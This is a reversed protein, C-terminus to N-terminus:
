LLNCSGLCFVEIVVLRGRRTDEDVFLLPFNSSLSNCCVSVLPGVNTLVRKVNELLLPLLHLLLLLPM